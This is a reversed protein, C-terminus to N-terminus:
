PEEVLRGRRRFHIGHPTMEGITFIAACDHGPELGPVPVPALTCLGVFRSEGRLRRRREAFRNLDKELALDATSELVLVVGQVRQGIGGRIRRPSQHRRQGRDGRRLARRAISRLRGMLGGHTQGGSAFLAAPRELEGVRGTAAAARLRVVRGLRGM